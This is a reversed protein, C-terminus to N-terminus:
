EEDDNKYDEAIASLLAETEVMHEGLLCAIQQVTAINKNIVERAQKAVYEYGNLNLTVNNVIAGLSEGAEICFVHVDYVKGDFHYHEKHVEQNTALVTKFTGAM